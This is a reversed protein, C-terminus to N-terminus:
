DDWWKGGRPFSFLRSSNMLPPTGQHKLQTLNNQLLKVSFYSSKEREREREGRREREPKWIEKVCRLQNLLDIYLYKGVSKLFDMNPMLQFSWM